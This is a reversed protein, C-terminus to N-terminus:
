TMLKLSKNEGVISFLCQLNQIILILDMLDSIIMTAMGTQLSLQLYLNMGSQIIIIRNNVSDLSGWENEVFLTAWYEGESSYTHTPNESVSMNYLGADPDDFNWLLKEAGLSQNYFQITPHEMTTIDPTRSFSAIPNPHVTIYSPKYINNKCGDTNTVELGITYTGTEFFAHMPNQLNSSNGNGSSPDWFGMGM